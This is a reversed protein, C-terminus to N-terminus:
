LYGFVFKANGLAFSQMASHLVKCQRICMKANGLAFDTLAITIESINLYFICM